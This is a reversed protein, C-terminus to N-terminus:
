RKIPLIITMATGKGVESEAEIVGDHDKVIRYSISLGLGTGDERMSFFPDFIMCLKDRPMGRGDDKVEIFIKGNDWWTRIWINGKDMSQSANLIVNSFVQNLQGLNCLIRPLRGLDNHVTIGDHFQNKLVALTDLIGQNIDGPARGETDPKAYRKLTDTIVGIREIGKLNRATFEEIYEMIKLYPYRGKIQEKMDSLEMQISETNSKIYALPNNVEHAVGAVLLGLSAMKENQILENTQKRVEEELHEARNKLDEELRKRDTIDVIVSISGKFEGDSDWLPAASLNLDRVDGNKHFVKTEYRNTEGTERKKTETQFKSYSEEDTLYRLNMGKLEDVEYGLMDAFAPNVFTITEFPDVIGIGEQAGQFLTRYREESEKLAAEADKEATIDRWISQILKKGQISIVRSSVRINRIEGTKTRHKTEFNDAGKEIIQDIHTDVEEPSEIVEFDTIGFKEFEERTYGLNEHARENFDVLMGTKPDILLISDAAQEFITRYREESEKLAEEIRKRESIEQRLQEDADKGEAESRKKATDKLEM